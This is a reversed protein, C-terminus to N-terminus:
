NTYIINQNADTIICKLGALLLWFAISIRLDYYQVDVMQSILLIFFSTWWSREFYNNSLDKVKSLFIKKFSKLCIIFVNSFILIAVVLGYNFGLDIILNHAHGKYVDNKLFFYIPFSAAGYGLLPNNIIMKLAFGIITIRRDVPNSYESDMQSFINFRELLSNNSFNTINEPLINLLFIILVFLCAFNLWLFLRFSSTSLLIPLTLFLGGLANRSSTLFSALAISIIFVASIGKKYFVKTKELFIAIAFPWIINLWCGTYNQNNFLGSLHEGPKQFWIILGNLLTLPGHWNFWYQGFGSVLVPVSGAVFLQMIIKREELTNLYKQFIFFCLFLPIWNALGTISDIRNTKLITIGESNSISDWHSAEIILQDFNLVNICSIIIMLLASLVFIQNHKDKLIEFKDKFFSTVLIILFLLISLFPASPLFFVGLRFINKDFVSFLRQRGM